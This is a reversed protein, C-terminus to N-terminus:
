LPMVQVGEWDSAEGLDITRWSGCKNCVENTYPESGLYDGQGNYNDQEDQELRTDAHNCRGDVVVSIDQNYTLPNTINRVAIKM